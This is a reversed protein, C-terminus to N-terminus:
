DFGTVGVQSAFEPAFKAQSELVEHAIQNSREVWDGDGKGPAAAMTSFSAALLGAALLQKFM